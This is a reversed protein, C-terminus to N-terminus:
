LFMINLYNILTMIFQDKWVICSDNLKAIINSHLAYIRYARYEFFIYYICNCNCVKKRIISVVLIVKFFNM